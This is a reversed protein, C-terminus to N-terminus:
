WRHDFSPDLPESRRRILRPVCTRYDGEFRTSSRNVLAAQEPATAVHILTLYETCPLHVYSLAGAAGGPTEDAHVLTASALLTQMHGLFTKEWRRATRGHIGALFGTSVDIATLAELVERACGVPLYHAYTLLAARAM